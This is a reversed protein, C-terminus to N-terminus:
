RAERKVAVCFLLIGALRVIQYVGWTSWGPVTTYAGWALLGLGFYVLLATRFLGLDARTWVTAVIAGWAGARLLLDPGREGEWLLALVGLVMVAGFAMLALRRPLLVALVIGAQSIPYVWSTLLPDVGVHKGWDALWAVVFVGALWWLASERPRRWALALAPLLAMHHAVEFIM